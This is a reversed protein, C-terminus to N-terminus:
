RIMRKKFKSPTEGYVNRFTDSFSRPNAFGNDMAIKLISNDTNMLDKYAHDLRISSVYESFSINAYKKFFRSLYQPALSFYEAVDEQRIDEQYHQQLYKTIDSLRNLYKQTKIVMNTKAKECSFHTILIYEMEYLLSHIRLDYGTNREKKLRMMELMCAKIELLAPNKDPNASLDFYLNKHEQYYSLFYELPLQLIIGKDQSSSYLSHIENPNVLLLEEENVDYRQSNKFCTIAGKTCYILELSQHWHKNVHRNGNVEEHAIIRLPIKEDTVVTEYQYEMTDVGTITNIM